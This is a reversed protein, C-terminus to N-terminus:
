KESSQEAHLIQMTRFIFAEMQRHIKKWILPTREVKIKQRKELDGKILWAIVHSPVQNIHWFEFRFHGCYNRGRKPRNVDLISYFFTPRTEPLDMLTASFAGSFSTMKEAWKQCSSMACWATAPTYIRDLSVLSIENIQRNGFHHQFHKESSNITFVNTIFIISDKKNRPLNNQTCYRCQWLYSHKWKDIFTKEFWDHGNM